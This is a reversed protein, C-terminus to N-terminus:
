LSNLRSKLVRALLRGAGRAAELLDGCRGGPRGGTLREIRRRTHERLRPESDQHERLTRVVFRVRETESRAHLLRGDRLVRHRLLAPAHNLVVLDLRESGVHRGLVDGLRWIADKVRTPDAVAEDDLLVAVDVDSDARASGRGQSGFLYALRVQREGALAHALLATLRGANASTGRGETRM